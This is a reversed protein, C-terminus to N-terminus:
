PEPSGRPRLDGPADPRDPAFEGVDHFAHWSRATMPDLGLHRLKQEDVDAIARKEEDTLDYGQFAAAPDAVLQQRLEEDELARTVFRSVQAHSM